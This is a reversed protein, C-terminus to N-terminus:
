NIIQTIQTIQPHNEAECGEWKWIGERERM